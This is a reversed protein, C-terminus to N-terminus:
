KTVETTAQHHRPPRRCTVHTGERGVNLRFLRPGLPSRGEPGRTMTILIM